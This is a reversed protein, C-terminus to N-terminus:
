GEIIKMIDQKLEKLKEDIKKEIQEIEKESRDLRVGEMLPRGRNTSVPLKKGEEIAVIADILKKKTLTSPAKVGVERGMRRLLYLPTKELRMRLSNMKESRFYFLAGVFDACM